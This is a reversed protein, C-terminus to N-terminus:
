GSGIDLSDSDPIRFDGWNCKKLYGTKYSKWVGEFQNNKYSDSNFDLADYQLQGKADIYFNTQFKGKLIGAGKESPDELFEYSGKLYGKNTKSGQTTRAESIKITGQFNCKNGNVLTKGKVLYQLNNKTSKKVSIFHIYFRQYNEGIYGLPEPRDIIREENKIYLREATWLHSVNYEGIKNLFEISYKPQALALWSNFFLVSIFLLRM